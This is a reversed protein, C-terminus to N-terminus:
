RTHYPHMKKIEIFVLMLHYGNLIKKLFNMM